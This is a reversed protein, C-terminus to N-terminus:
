MLQVHMKIHLVGQLVHLTLPAPTLLKFKGMNNM